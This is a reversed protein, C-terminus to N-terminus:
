QISPGNLEKQLNGIDRLLELRKKEKELADIGANDVADKRTKAADIARTVSGGFSEVAAADVPSSSSSMSLLAGSSPALKVSYSMAVEGAEGDLDGPLAAIAGYQAINLTSHLREEKGVTLWALAQAPVRYVIGSPSTRSAATRRSANALSLDSIKLHVSVEKGAAPPSTLQLAVDMVCRAKDAKDDWLGATSDLSFLPFSEGFSVETGTLASPAMDCTVTSQKVTQKGTFEALLLKEQARLENLLFELADKPSGNTQGQGKVIAFRAERLRKIDDATRECRGADDAAKGGFLVAKSAIDVAGGIVKLSVDLAKNTSELSSSALFGQESLEIGRKSATMFHENLEIAYIQEPDVEQRVTLAPAGLEILINNSGATPPPAGTVSAIIADAEKDFEEPSPKPEPAPAAAPKKGPQAPPAQQAEPHKRGWRAQLEKALEKRACSPSAETETRTVPITVTIITRPLAYLVSPAGLQGSTPTVHHVRYGHTCGAITHICALAAAYRAMAGIRNM